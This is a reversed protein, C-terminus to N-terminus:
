RERKENLVISSQREHQNLVNLNDDDDDDDENNYRRYLSLSYFLVNGKNGSGSDDDEKVEEREREREKKSRIKTRNDPRRHKSEEEQQEQERKRNRHWDKKSSGKKRQMRRHEWNCVFMKELIRKSGTKRGDGEKGSTHTTQAM